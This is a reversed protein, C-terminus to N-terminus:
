DESVDLAEMVEDNRQETLKSIVAACSELHTYVEKSHTAPISALLLLEYSDHCIRALDRSLISIMEKQEEILLQRIEVQNSLNEGGGLYTFEEDSEENLKVIEGDEFWENKKSM